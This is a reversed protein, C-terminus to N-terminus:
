DMGEIFGDIHRPTEPGGLADRTAAELEAMTFPKPLLGAKLQTLLERNLEEGGRGTVFIVPTRLGAERLRRILTPGNMGPLEVDTLILDPTEGRGDTGPPTPAHVGGWAELMAEAEEASSAVSVRYGLRRLVREGTRRITANDEVLLLHSHNPTRDPSGNPTPSSFPVGIAGNSNPELIPVPERAKARRERPLFIRIATGEGERSELAIIGSAEQIMRHVTSLGLGTGKGAPKTTFFPQLARAATDEDMGAGTDRVELCVWGRGGAEQRSSGDRVPPADTSCRITLTGGSEMADRANVVLNMLVQEFENPDMLVPLPDHHLQLEVRLGRGLLREFMDMAQSVLANLDFTETSRKGRRSYTLLQQTLKRGREGADRARVLDEKLESTNSIERIALDLSTNIVALLNNFDHAAGGALLAVGELKQAQRFQEELSRAETLDQKIGIFHTIEGHESRVPTITQEELYVSGDKRLNTLRGRWVRGDLITKWMDRYFDSDQYGSKLVDGPNRGRVEELNWGTLETFAQNVWEVAGTRDTIVVAHAAAQLASGQLRLQDRAHIWILERQLLLGLAVTAAPFLGVLTLTLALVTDRGPEFPVSFLLAGMVLHVAAGLALFEPWRIRHLRSRRRLRWLMGIGGSALIVLIGVPAGVGGEAWRYAMALIMALITSLPAAFLGTVGFLVSRADFFVNSEVVVPASMVAIAILGILVGALAQDAFRHRLRLKSITLSYVFALGLLLVASQLMGMLFEAQLVQGNM